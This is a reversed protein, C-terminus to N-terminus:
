QSEPPRGGDSGDMLSRLRWLRVFFAAFGLVIGILLFTPSTGLKGDVWWGLLTPLVVAFVAEVAGQYAAAM